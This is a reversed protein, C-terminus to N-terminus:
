TTQHLLHYKSFLRGIKAVIQNVTAGDNAVSQLLAAAVGVVKPQTEENQECQIELTSMTADVVGDEVM